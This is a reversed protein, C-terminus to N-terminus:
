AIQAKGRRRNFHFPSAAHCLFLAFFPDNPSKEGNEPRSYDGSRGIVIRGADRGIRNGTRLHAGRHQPRREDGPWEHGGHL